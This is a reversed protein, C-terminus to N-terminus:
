TGTSKSSGLQLLCGVVTTWISNLCGNVEFQGVATSLGGSTDFDFCLGNFEFQGVATSLGVSNDVNFELGNSGFQGVATSLGLFTAAMPDFYLGNFKFQVVATSLGVSNDVDFELCQIRVAWGCYVVWGRNTAM